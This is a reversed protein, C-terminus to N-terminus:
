PPNAARAQKVIQGAQFGDPIPVLLWKAVAVNAAKLVNGAPASSELVEIGRARLQQVLADKEEIVLFPIAAHRLAKGIVSGVRGFGVLVAHGKLTTVDHESQDARAPQM